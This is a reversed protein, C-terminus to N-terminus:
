QLSKKLPDIEQLIVDPLKRKEEPPLLPLLVNIIINLAYKWVKMTAAREWSSDYNGHSGNWMCLIMYNQPHTAVSPFDRKGLIHAVSGHWGLKDMRNINVDTEWCKGPENQMIKEYWKQLNTSEGGREKKEAKEQELKKASKKAIPKKPKPGTTKPEQGLKIRNLKQQYESLM